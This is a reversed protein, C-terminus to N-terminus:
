IFGKAALPALGKLPKVLLPRDIVSSARFTGYRIFDACGSSFAFRQFVKKTKDRRKGARISV